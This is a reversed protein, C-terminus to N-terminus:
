NAMQYPVTRYSNEKSSSIETKKSKQQGKDKQRTQKLVMHRNKNLIIKSIGKTGCLIIM